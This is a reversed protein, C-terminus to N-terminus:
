FASISRRTYPLIFYEGCLCAVMLAEILECDIFYWVANQNTESPLLNQLTTIAM